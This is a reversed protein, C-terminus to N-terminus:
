GRAKSEARRTDTDQNRTEDPICRGTSWIARLLSRYRFHNPLVRRVTDFASDRPRKKSKNVDKSPGAASDKERRSNSGSTGARESVKEKEIKEKNAKEEKARNQVAYVTEKKLRGEANDKLM